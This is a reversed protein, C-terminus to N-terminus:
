AVLSARKMKNYIEIGGYLFIPLYCVVNIYMVLEWGVNWHFVKTILIILPIKVFIACLATIIQAKFLAFANLIIMFFVSVIYILSYLIFPLLKAITVRPASEGLWIDFVLSLSVSLILNILICAVTCALLILIYKKLGKKDREAEAKSIATWLPQQIVTGLLIPMLSFLKYYETYETVLSSNYNFLFLIMFENLSWLFLNGIQITFFYFSTHVVSKSKKFDIFKLSPSINKFDKRYLIISAVLLPAILFVFYALALAFIKYEAPFVKAFILAFLMLCANTIVMFVSSIANKQYAQLVYNINKMFFHTGIALLIILVGIRFSMLNIDAANQGNFFVTMLANDSLTFFISGFVGFILLGIGATLCYTTSIYTKSLQEDKSVINKIINNKLGNGMGFDFVMVVSLISTIAIWIGYRSDSGFYKLYVPITLFAILIAIGRVVISGIVNRSVAANYTKSLIVDKLAIKSEYSEKFINKNREDWKKPLLVMSLPILYLINVILIEGQGQVNSLLFILPVIIIKSFADIKNCLIIGGFVAVMYFLGALGFSAMLVGFTATQADIGVDSIAFYQERASVGGFGFLPRKIFVNLCTGFSKFRTLFSMSGSGNGLKGFVDPNLSILFEIIKEDFAVAAIIVLIFIYIFIAKTYINTTKEICFLLFVVPLLLYATTSRSLITGVIFVIIRVVTLKDKKTYIEAVLASIMMTALVSPEWFVSMLRIKFHYTNTLGTLADNSLFFFTGYLNKNGSFYATPFFTHSAYTILYIIISISLFVFITNKFVVLILRIPFSSLVCFSIIITLGFAIYTNINLAKNKNFLFSLILFFLIAIVAIVFPSPIPIKKKKISERFLSVNCKLLFFSGFYLLSFGYLVIKGKTPMAFNTYGFGSLLTILFIGIVILLTQLIINSNNKIKEKILQLKM